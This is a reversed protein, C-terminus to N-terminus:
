RGRCCWVVAAHITTYSSANMLHNSLVDSLYMSGYNIRALRSPLQPLLGRQKAALHMCRTEPQYRSVKVTPATCSVAARLWVLLVGSVLARRSMDCRDFARHAAM